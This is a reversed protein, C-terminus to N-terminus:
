KFNSALLRGDIFIQTPKKVEEQVIEVTSVILKIELESVKGAVSSKLNYETVGNIKVDDLYIQNNKITLKSIKPILIKM